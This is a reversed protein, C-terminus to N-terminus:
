SALDPALQVLVAIESRTLETFENLNVEVVDETLLLCLVEILRLIGSPNGQVVVQDPFSLTELGTGDIGGVSCDDRLRAVQARLATLEDGWPDSM